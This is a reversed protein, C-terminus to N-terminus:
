GVKQLIATRRQGLVRYRDNQHLIIDLHIAGQAVMRDKPKPLDDCNAFGINNYGRIQGRL